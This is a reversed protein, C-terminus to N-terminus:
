WSHTNQLLMKPEKDFLLVGFGYVSFQKRSQDILLWIGLM